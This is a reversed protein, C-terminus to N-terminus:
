GSTKRSGEQAIQGDRGKRCSGDPAIRGARDQPRLGQLGGCAV